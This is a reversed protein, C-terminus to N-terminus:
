ALVGIPWPVFSEEGAGEEEGKTREGSAYRLLADFLYAGTEELTAGDLVPGADLDIDGSMSEFTETSASIKVTPAPLSGFGTGRGTAMAILTAGGAIQGTVSVADDDPTDMFVLGGGTVREAYNLAASVPASGAKALGDLAMEAASVLGAAEQARSLRGGLGTDRGRAHAQWWELRARIAEAVQQNAARALLAGSAHALQPTESLIATGGQALLMDVAVGLAPHASLGSFGDAASGQLGLVLEGAPVKERRAADALPLMAQILGTATEVAKRIGGAEQITVTRLRDGLELGEQRLFGALNNRECGLAVVVAGALNPNRIFGSLTRRLLDMPEGTMEMGCGIEHVFPVVGDVHPFPALRSADFADAAQRAATAGCNGVVLVGLINRTGVRGDPRRFGRFTAPGRAPLSHPRPPVPGPDAPALQGARLVQGAALAERALGIPWGDRTVAEGPAVDRLLVKHGPAVDERAVVGPALQAGAAVSRRVVLIPDAPSPQIVRTPPSFHGM